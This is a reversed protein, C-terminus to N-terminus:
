TLAFIMDGIKSFVLFFGFVLCNNCTEDGHGFKSFRQLRKALVATSLAGSIALFNVFMFRDIYCKSLGLPIESSKKERERKEVLRM